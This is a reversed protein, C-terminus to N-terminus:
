AEDCCANSNGDHGACGRRWRSGPTDTVPESLRADVALPATLAPRPGLQDIRTSVVDLLVDARLVRAVERQRRPHSLCLGHQRHLGPVRLLLAREDIAAHDDCAVLVNCVAPPN